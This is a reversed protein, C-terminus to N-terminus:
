SNRLPVPMPKGSLQGPGVQNLINKSGWFDDIEIHVSGELVIGVSTICEGACFIMEGKSFSKIQGSLCHLISSIEEPKVGHFLPIKKLIPFNM